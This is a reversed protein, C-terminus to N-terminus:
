RHPNYGKPIYKASLIGVMFENLGLLAPTTLYDQFSIVMGLVSKKQREFARRGIEVVQPTEGGTVEDVIRELMRAIRCDKM